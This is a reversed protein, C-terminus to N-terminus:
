GYEGSTSGQEVRTPQYTKYERSSTGRLTWIESSKLHLVKFCMEGLKNKEYGLKKSKNIQEFFNSWTDRPLLDPKM